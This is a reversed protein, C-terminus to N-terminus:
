CPDAPGSPLTPPAGPPFDYPPIPGRPPPPPTDSDVNAPYAQIEAFAPALGVISSPSLRRDLGEPCYRANRTPRSTPTTRPTWTPNSFDRRM